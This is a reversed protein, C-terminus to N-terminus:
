QVETEGNIFCASFSGERQEGGRGEPSHLLYGSLIPLMGLFSLSLPSMNEMGTPGWPLTFILVWVQQTVELM